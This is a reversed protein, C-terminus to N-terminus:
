EGCGTEGTVLIVRGSGEAKEMMKLFEGRAKAAPLNKRCNEMLTSLKPFPEAVPTQKPSKNWFFSKGPPRRRRLVSAKKTKTPRKHSNIDDRGNGEIKQRPHKKELLKGGGPLFPVLTSDLGSKIPLNDDSSLILEQAHNFLEFVLPEGRTLTSLFKILNVHIATGTGEKSPVDSRWGGCLFIQPYVIPYAGSEYCIRLIQENGEEFGDTPLHISIMTMETGSKDNYTTVDLDEETPFMAKLVEIEDNVISKNSEKQDESIPENLKIKVDSGAAQCLANWFLERIEVSLDNEDKPISKSLLTAEVMTVGYQHVVENIINQQQSDMDKEKVDKSTSLKSTSGKPASIVSLTRGRPDFGEPLQDENLHVCLWQLSEDYVSDMYTDEEIDQEMLASLASSPNEQVAIFGTSAQAKTFGEQALRRVVYMKVFDEEDDDDEEPEKSEGNTLSKLLEDDADGRLLSEIQKRIQASMFVQMDRNAMREAERKRLKTNRAKTKESVFQRQQARSTFSNAQILNSSAMAGGEKKAPAKEVSDEQKAGKKKLSAGGAASGQPKTDKQQVANLWTTKYPEPLKREHPISPTMHLLALLAAEEKAQEPNEVTGRPCFLLDHDGGRRSAKADQVIVRYKHGGKADLAKFKPPPRRERKCVEALLASPLRQWQAISTQGM